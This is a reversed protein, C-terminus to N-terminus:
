QNAETEGWKEQMLRALELSQREAEMHRQLAAVHQRGTEVFTQVAADHVQRSLAASEDVSQQFLSLAQEAAVLLLSHADARPKAAHAMQQKHVDM